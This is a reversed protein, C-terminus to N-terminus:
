KPLKCRSLYERLFGGAVAGTEHAPDMRWRLVSVPELADSSAPFSTRASPDLAATETEDPTRILWALEAGSVLDPPAIAPVSDIWIEFRLPGVRLTDGRCLRVNSVRRENVYTGNRSRLDRVHVAGCHRAIACHFRSVYASAPRLHCRPDRGIVFQTAPLEIQRNAHKGGLVLMRVTM